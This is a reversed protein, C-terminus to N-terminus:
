VDGYHRAAMKRLKDLLRYTRVKVNNETIGLLYGVEKFPREEFFRLELLQVEDPSLAELWEALAQARETSEFDMEEFLKHVHTDEISVVRQRRGKRYFENVQNVAIRFLWASFPAGKFRYQSLKNLAKLFVQQTLDAVTQRDDVRRDIFTFINEYHKEYLFGFAEPNKKATEVIRQEEQIDAETQHM